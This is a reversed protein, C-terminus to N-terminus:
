DKDSGWTRLWLRAGEEDYRICFLDREGHSYIIDPSFRLTSSFSGLVALEGGEYALDHVEDVGVGVYRKAWLAKGSADYVAVFGDKATGRASLEKGAFRFSSEAWGGIAIREQDESIAISSAQERAPGGLSQMWIVKGEQSLVLVFADRDGHSVVTHGDIALKGAFSGALIFDGNARIKISRVFSDSDGTLHRQWRQTGDIKLALLSLGRPLSAKGITGAGGMTPALVVDGERDFAAARLVSGVPLTSSWPAVSATKVSPAGSKAPKELAGSGEPTAAMPSVAM